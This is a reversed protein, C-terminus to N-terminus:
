TLKAAKLSTHGSSHPVGLASSLGQLSSAACSGRFAFPLTQFSPGLLPAKSSVWSVPFGLSLIRTPETGGRAGIGFGLPLTQCEGYYPFLTCPNSHLETAPHTSPTHLTGWVCCVGGGGGCLSFLSWTTHEVTCLSLAVNIVGLVASLM